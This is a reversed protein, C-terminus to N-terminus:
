FFGVFFAFFPCILKFCAKKADAFPFYSTNYKNTGHKNSKILIYGVM